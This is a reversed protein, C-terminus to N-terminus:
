LRKIEVSKWRQLLRMLRKTNKLYEVQDTAYISVSYQSDDSVL